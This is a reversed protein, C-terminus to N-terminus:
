TTTRASVCRVRPTYIVAAVGVASRPATDTAHAHMSPTGQPSARSVVSSYLQVPNPQRGRSVAYPFRFPSDAAAMVDHSRMAVLSTTAGAISRRTIYTADELSSTSARRTRPRAWVPRRRTSGLVASACNTTHISQLATRLRSKAPHLTELLTTTPQVKAASLTCSIARRTRKQRTTLGSM